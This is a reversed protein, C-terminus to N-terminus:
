KGESRVKIGTLENPGLRAAANRYIDGEPIFLM